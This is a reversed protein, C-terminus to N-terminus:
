RPLNSLLKSHLMFDQQHGEHKKIEQNERFTYHSLQKPCSLYLHNNKKEKVVSFIVSLVYGENLSVM